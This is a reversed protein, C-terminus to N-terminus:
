KEFRRLDKGRLPGRHVTTLRGLQIDDTRVRDPAGDERRRRAGLRAVDRWKPRLARPPPRTPGAASPAVHHASTASSRRLGRCLDLRGACTRLSVEVARSGAAVWPAAAEHNRTGQPPGGSNRSRRSEGHIWRAEIPLSLRSPSWHDVADGAERVGDQKDRLPAILFVWAWRSVATVGRGQAQNERPRSSRERCATQGARTGDSPATDYLRRRRM